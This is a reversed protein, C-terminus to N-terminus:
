AGPPLIASASISENALSNWASFLMAFRDAFGMNWAPSPSVIPHCRVRIWSACYLKYWSASFCYRVMAIGFMPTTVEGGGLRLQVLAYMRHARDDPQLDRSQDHVFGYLGVEM